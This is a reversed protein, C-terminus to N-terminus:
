LRSTMAWDLLIMVDISLVNTELDILQNLNHYQLPPNDIEIGRSMDRLAKYVM